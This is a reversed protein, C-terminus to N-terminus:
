SIYNAMITISCSSHIGVKQRDKMRHMICRWVGREPTIASLLHSLTCGLLMNNSKKVFSSSLVFIVYLSTGRWEQSHILLNHGTSRIRGRLLSVGCWRMLFDRFSLCELIPEIDIIQSLHVCRRQARTEVYIRAHIIFPSGGPTPTTARCVSSHGDCDPLEISCFTSNNINSSCLSKGLQLEM